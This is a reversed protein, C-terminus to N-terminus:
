LLYGLPILKKSYIVLMHIIEFTSTIEDEVCQTRGVKEMRHREVRGTKNTVEGGRDNQTDGNTNEQSDEKRLGEGMM